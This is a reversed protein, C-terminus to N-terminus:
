TTNSTSNSVVAPKTRNNDAYRNSALFIARFDTLKTLTFNEVSLTMNLVTDTLFLMSNNVNAMIQAFDFGIPLLDSDKFPLIAVTRNNIRLTFNGSGGFGSYTRMFGLTANLAFVNVQGPGYYGDESRSIIFNAANDINAAYKVKNFNWALIAYSTAEITRLVGQAGSVSYNVKSVSGNANQLKMLADSYIIAEKPRMLNYLAISLLSTVYADNTNLKIQADVAAKLALIESNIETVVGAQSLAFLIYANTANENL